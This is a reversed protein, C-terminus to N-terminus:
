QKSCSEEVVNFLEVGKGIERVRRLMEQAHGPDSFEACLRAEGELGIRTQQLRAVKGERRADELMTWVAQWATRTAEPVGRGRSLAYVAFSASVADTVNEEGTTRAPMACGAVAAWASILWVLTRGRDGAIDIARRM